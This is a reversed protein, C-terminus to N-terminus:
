NGIVGGIRVIIGEVLKKGLEDCYAPFVGSSCVSSYEPLNTEFPANEQLFVWNGKQINRGLLGTRM